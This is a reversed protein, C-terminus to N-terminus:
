DHFSGAKPMPPTLITELRTIRQEQLEVTRTLDFIVQFAEHMIRRYNSMGPTTVDLERIEALIEDITMM